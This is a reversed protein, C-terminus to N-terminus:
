KRQYKLLALLTDNPKFALCDITTEFNGTTIQHKISNIIYLGDFLFSNEVYLAQGCHFACYGKLTLTLKLNVFKMVAPVIGVNKIQEVSKKNTSLIEELNAKLISLNTGKNSEIYLKPDYGIQQCLYEIQDTATSDQETLGERQITMLNLAYLPQDYDFQVSKIVSNKDNLKIHIANKIELSAKGTDNPYEDDLFYFTIITNTNDESIIYEIKNKLTTDISQDIINSLCKKLNGNFISGTKQAEFSLKLEGINLKNDKFFNADVKTDQIDNFIFKIPKNIPINNIKAGMDNIKTSLKECLTKLTIFYKTVETENNTREKYTGSSDSEKFTINLNEIKLQSDLRNINNTYRCSFTYRKYDAYNIKYTVLTLPLYKAFANLSYKSNDSSAIKGNSFITGNNAGGWGFWLEAKAYLGFLKEYYGNSVFTEMNHIEGEINVDFVGYSGLKIDYSISKIFPAAYTGNIIGQINQMTTYDYITYGDLKLYISPIMEAHKERSINQFNQFTTNAKPDTVLIKSLFGM